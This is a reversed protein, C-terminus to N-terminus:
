RPCPKGGSPKPKTIIRVTTREPARFRVYNVPEYNGWLVGDTSTQIEINPSPSDYYACKDSPIAITSGWFTEVMRATLTKPENAANTCGNMVGLVLFLVALGWLIFATRRPNANAQARINKLTDIVNM